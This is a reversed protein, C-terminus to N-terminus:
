TIRLRELALLRKAFWGALGLCWLDLDGQHVLKRCNDCVLGAINHQITIVTLMLQWKPQVPMNHWTDSKTILPHWLCYNFLSVSQHELELARCKYNLHYQNEDTCLACEQCLQNWWLQACAWKEEWKPGFWCGFNWIVEIPCWTLHSGDLQAYSSLM